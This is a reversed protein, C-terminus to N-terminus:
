ENTHGFIFDTGAVKARGKGRSEEGDDAGSFEGERCVLVYAGNPCFIHRMILVRFVCSSKCHLACCFNYGLTRSDTDKLSQVMKRIVIYMDRMRHKNSDLQM